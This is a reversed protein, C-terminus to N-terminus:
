SAPRAAGVMGVPARFILAQADMVEEFRAPLGVGRDLAEAAGVAGILRLRRQEAGDGRVHLGLLAKKRRNGAAQVGEARDRAPLPLGAALPQEAGFVIEFAILGARREPLEIAPQRLAGNLTTRQRLELLHGAQRQGE